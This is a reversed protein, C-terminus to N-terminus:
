NKPSESLERTLRAISNLYGLVLKELYRLFPNSKEDQSYLCDKIGSLVESSKVKFRRFDDSYKKFHQLIEINNKDHKRQEYQYEYYLSSQQIAIDLKPIIQSLIDVMVKGKTQFMNAYNKCNIKYKRLLQQFGINSSDKYGLNLLRGEYEMFLNGYMKQVPVAISELNQTKRRELTIM